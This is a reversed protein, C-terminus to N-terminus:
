CFGLATKQAQWNIPLDNAKLLHDAVLNAPQHGAVIAEVIDPTMFALKIVDGVYSKSVGEREAIDRLGSVKGYLLDDWWTWARAITKVLVPDVDGPRHSTTQLVLRMEVGRRKMQMPLTQTMLIQQDSSATTAAPMLAALDLSVAIGGDQLGVRHVVRTLLQGDSMSRVKGAIVTLHNSLAHAAIGASSLARSVAVADSLMQRTAQGVSQELAAAPLRWGSADKEVKLRQSIYYRYRRGRKVTHSPTLGDGTEDFLKGILPSAAVKSAISTQRQMRPQRADLASQVEDWLDVDLLPEHQGNHCIGKHRVKGIYVPNRLIQHIAGRSLVAGGEKEQGPRPRGRTNHQELEKKLDSVSGLDLYRQFINRVIKAEDQRLLLRRDKVEYGLPVPGGMFIGKAKSAKIKDRIREGTVEREFQAFSLLVNLTLRGMSSTTNFQQTVSVFSVGHSDFLEVMRAFDALSRTLRDVKYVVIIDVKRDRIDDLLEQLAPRNMTGGSIGGDDYATKILGWGEHRQSKIFAECAERQAHLSNFDQELGEESSKRTYIACRMVKTM